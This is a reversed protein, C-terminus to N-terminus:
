ETDSKKELLNEIVDEITDNVDIGLDIDIKTSLKAEDIAISVKDALKRYEREKKKTEKADFTLKVEVEKEYVYRTQKGEVDLKFAYDSGKSMTEKLKNTRALNYLVVNRLSKNYEVASDYTLEMDNVNIVINHKAEEIAKSLEAKKVMLIELLELAEEVTVDLYKDVERVITEDTAEKDAKSRYHTETVVTTYDRNGLVNALTIKFNEINKALKCAETLNMM